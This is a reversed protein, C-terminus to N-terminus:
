SLISGTLRHSQQNLTSDLKIHYLGNGDKYLSRKGDRTLASDITFTYEKKPIVGEMEKECSEFGMLVSVGIFIKRM